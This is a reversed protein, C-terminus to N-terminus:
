KVPHIIWNTHPLFTQLCSPIFGFIFRIPSLPYPNPTLIPKHDPNPNNLCHGNYISVTRRWHVKELARKLSSKDKGLRALTKELQAKDEQLGQFSTQLINAREQLDGKERRLFACGDQAEQLEQEQKRLAQSRWLNVFNIPFFSKISSMAYKHVVWLIIPVYFTISNLPTEWPLHTYVHIQAVEQLSRIHKDLETIRLESDDQNRLLNQLKDNLVHNQKKSDLLTDRAKDLQEQVWVFITGNEKGNLKNGEEKGDLGLMQIMGKRWRLLALSHLMSLM